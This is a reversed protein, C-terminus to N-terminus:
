LTYNGRYVNSNYMIKETFDVNIKVKACYKEGYKEGKRNKEAGKRFAFPNNKSTQM